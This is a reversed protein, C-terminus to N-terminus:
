SFLSLNKIWAEVAQAVENPKEPILAHSAGPITCISVIQGLKEKLEDRSEPPRWPDLEAQLDLIPSHSRSWWLDKEPSKGAQRYIDRLEPYWGELWSEPSNGPAFFAKQLAQLRDEHNQMPDSALDLCQSLGPPFVKAACALLVVGRVLEPFRLDLVRAVYHGYAHGAVVAGSPNLERIVSAVDLALDDLTLFELRGTSGAMGRPQPRAVTYGQAALLRSLPTFDLSDRQSSPLLVVLPGVGDLLVRLRASEHEVWIERAANARLDTSM